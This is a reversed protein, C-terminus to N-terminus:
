EISYNYAKLNFGSKGAYEFLYIKSESIAMEKAPVPLKFSYLYEGEETSYIDVAYIYRDKTRSHGVFLKNKILFSEGNIRPAEPNYRTFDNNAKLFLPEKIELNVANRYFLLENNSDYKRISGSFDGSYYLQGINSCGIHGTIVYPYRENDISLEQFTDVNILQQDKIDYQYLIGEKKEYGIGYQSSLIYIKEWKGDKDECLEIKDPKVFRNKLKYSAHLKNSGLDWIDIKRLDSDPIWIKKDNSLYIDFPSEYEGPGRGKKGGVRIPNQFDEDSFYFLTRQDWDLMALGGVDNLSLFYPSFIELSDLNVSELLKFNGEIWKIQDSDKKDSILVTTGNEQAMLASSFTISIVLLIIKMIISKIKLLTGM